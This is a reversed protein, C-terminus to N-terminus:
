GGILRCLVFGMTLFPVYPITTGKDAKKLILLVTSLISIMILSFAATLICQRFGLIIGLFILIMGDVWGAKQTGLALLLLVTGPIMGQLLDVFNSEGCVCGCIGTGVAAAGGLLVMWVPVRRYRIDFLSLGLMWFFLIIM